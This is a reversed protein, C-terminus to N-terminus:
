KSLGWQVASEGMGSKSRFSEYEVNSPDMSRAMEELADAARTTDPDDKDVLKDLIVVMQLLTDNIEAMKDVGGSKTDDSFNVTYLSALDMPDFGLMGGLGSMMGGMLGSMPNMLSQVQDASLVYEGAHVQALMDVPVPGGDAFGMYEMASGAASVLSGLIPVDEISPIMDVMESIKEGAWIFPAAIFDYVAAGIEMIKDVIGGFVDSAGAGIFDIVGGMWEFATVIFGIVAKFANGLMILPSFLMEGADVLAPSNGVFLMHYVEGFWKALDAMGNIIPGITWDYIVNIFDTLADAGMIIGEVFGGLIIDLFKDIIDIGYAFAEILLAFPSLILKLVAVIPRLVAFLLTFAKIIIKIPQIIALKFLSWLLHLVPKLFEFTEVALGVAQEAMNGFDTFLAGFEGLSGGGDQFSEMMKEIAAVIPEAFKAFLALIPTLIRTMLMKLTKTSENFSDDLAKRAAEMQQEKAIQEDTMKSREELVALYDETIGMDKMMAKRAVDDMGDLMDIIELGGAQMAKMKEAATGGFMADMQGGFAALTMARDSIDSVDKMMQAVVSMDVGLRKAAGAMAGMERTYVAIDDPTMKFTRQLTFMDKNLQGMLVDLDGGTLGFKKAAMTFQGMVQENQEVTAGMRMMHKTFTATQQVGAGTATTFKAVGVSLKNLATTGTYVEGSMSKVGGALTDGTIGAELMAKNLQVMDATNLGTQMSLDMSANVLEHISGAARFGALRFEEEYEIFKKIGESLLKFQIYLAAVAATIIVIAALALWGPGPIAALGGAVATAGGAAGGASGAAIAGGGAAAGASGAAAGGMGSLGSTLSPMLKSLASGGKTAMDMGAKMAKGSKGAMEKFKKLKKLKDIWGKAGKIKEAFGKGGEMIRSGLTKPQAPGAGAEPAAGPEGPVAAKKGFMKLKGMGWEVAAEKLGGKEGFIGKKIKNADGAFKKLGGTFAGLVIDADGAGKPILANFVEGFTNGFIGGAVDLALMAKEVMKLKEPVADLEDKQRILYDLEEETAIQEGKSQADRIQKILGGYHNSMQQINKLQDSQISTAMMSGSNVNEITSAYENWMANADEFGRTFRHQADSVDVIQSSLDSFSVASKDTIGTIQSVIKGLNSLSLAAKQAGPAAVRATITAAVNRGGPKTM